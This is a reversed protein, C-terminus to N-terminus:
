RIGGGSRAAARARSERIALWILLGVPGALFTLLLIPTQVLRGIRKADADQSIWLGTFLDLALYHTWGLAVGADSAFFGHVVAIGPLEVFLQGGGGAVLLALGASYAACLLGVGVYMVLAGTLGDRPALILVLWAAFALANTAAFMTDWSM